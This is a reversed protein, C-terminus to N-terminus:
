HRVRQKPTTNLQPILMPSLHPETFCAIIGYPIQSIPRNVQGNFLILFTLLPTDVPFPITRTGQLTQITQFLLRAAEAMSM